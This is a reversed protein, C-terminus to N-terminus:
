RRRVLWVGAGTGIIGLFITMTPLLVFSWYYTRIEQPMTFVAVEKPDEGTVKRELLWEACGALFEFNSTGSRPSTVINAAVRSSGIVVMKRVPDGPPPLGPHAPMGGGETVAIALNMNDTMNLRRQLDSQNESLRRVLQSLPLDLNSETLAPWQPMKVLVPDATVRSMQPPTPTVKLPRPEPLIVQKRSQGTTRFDAALQNTGSPNGVGIILPRMVYGGGQEILSLVRENVLEVNYRGLLPELGLPEAGKGSSSEVLDALVILKGKKSIFDDLAKVAAAPLKNRPGAVIVIEADPPVAAQVTGFKLDKVDFDRKELRDKFFGLGEPSRNDNWDPEGNGQTIYVVAKKGEILFSLASTIAGEGKFQIPPRDGTNRRQFDRSALDDQRILQWKKTKDGTDYELMVGPEFPKGSAKSLEVLKEDDYRSVTQFKLKDTWEQMNTLLTQLQPELAMTDADPDISVYVTVERNLNKLISKSRDSLTYMSSATFDLPRPFKVSVFINAVVLILVLLVGNLFANYGFLARRLLPSSRVDARGLQLSFLMVLMGAILAVQMSIVHWAGAVRKDRVVEKPDPGGAQSWMTIDGWWHYILYLGLVATWFGALGGLALVFMRFGNAARESDAEQYLVLWVGGGLAILGLVGCWAWVPWLALHAPGTARWDTVGLWIAVGILAVALLFLVGAFAKQNQMLRQLAPPLPSTSPSTSM